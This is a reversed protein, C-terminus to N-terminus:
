KKYQEKVHWEIRGNNNIKDFYVPYISLVCNDKLKVEMMIDVGYQICINLIDLPIDSICDSHTGKRKGPSQNSWHIKPKISRLKWTNIIRQVLTPDFINVHSESSIKHHFYDVCLPIKNKECLPLLEMVSYTWEDNELAIYERVNKPISNYVTEWRTLAAPKDGYGGGGHIIMVSGMSPTLGMYEFVKAHNSLDIISQDVVSQKPSGLQVFQGPHMTIRHGYKRALNGAEQLNKKAFDMTYPVARPNGLHPFLNSTIRLFRIGNDENYQIIKILDEINKLALSKAAEVGKEKLSKLTLTRSCFINKERNPISICAYGLRVSM